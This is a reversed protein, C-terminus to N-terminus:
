RRNFSEGHRYGGLISSKRPVMLSIRANDGRSWQLEQLRKKGGDAESLLSVLHQQKRNAPAGFLLVAAISSKVPVVKAAAHLDSLGALV